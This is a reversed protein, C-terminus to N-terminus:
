GNESSGTFRPTRDARTTTVSSRAIITVFTSNSWIATCIRDSCHQYVGKMGHKFISFFGEVTNTYVDGDVYQYAGHNVWEHSAFRRGISQYQRAEDTMLASNPDTNRVIIPGLDRVKTSPVHWSRAYGGREVVTLVAHKHGTGRRRRVGKKNGIYTEDAEITEGIGGLPTLSGSEVKMGERIRYAM